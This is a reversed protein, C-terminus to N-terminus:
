ASVICVTIYDTIDYEIYQIRSDSLLFSSVIIFVFVLFVSTLFTIGYRGALAAAYGLAAVVLSM